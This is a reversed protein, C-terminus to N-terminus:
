HLLFFGMVFFVAIHILVAYIQPKSYTSSGSNESPLDADAGFLRSYNRSVYRFAAATLLLGCVCFIRFLLHLSDHM